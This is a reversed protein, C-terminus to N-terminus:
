GEAAGPEGLDLPEPAEGGLLQVVEATWPSTRLSSAYLRLPESGEIEFTVQQRMFRPEVSSVRIAARPMTRNQQAQAGSVGSRLSLLHVHEADVALLVNTGLDRKSGRVRTALAFFAGLVPIAALTELPVTSFEGVAQPRHGIAGEALGLFQETRRKRYRRATALREEESQAEEKSDLPGFPSM